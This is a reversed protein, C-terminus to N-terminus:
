KRYISLSHKPQALSAHPLPGRSLLTMSMGDQLFARLRHTDLRLPVLYMYNVREMLLDEDMVGHHMYKAVLLILKDSLTGRCLRLFRRLGFLVYNFLCSSPMTMFLLGGVNLDSLIKRFLIDSPSHMLHVSSDAIILDFPDSDINIYNAVLFEVRDSIHSRREDMEAAHINSESIDVGTFSAYLLSAALDYIQQGTGCGLDLIRISEDKKVYKLIESTLHKVRGLPATCTIKSLIDETM